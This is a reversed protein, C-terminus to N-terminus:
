AGGPQDESPEPPLAARAIKGFDPQWHNYTGTIGKTVVREVLKGVAGNAAYNEEDAYFRLAKRLRDNEQGLVRYAMRLPEVEEALRIADCPDSRACYKCRGVIGSVHRERVKELDVVDDTKTM